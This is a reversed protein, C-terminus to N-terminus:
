EKGLYKKESLKFIHFFVEYAKKMKGDLYIAGMLAEFCEASTRIGETGVWITDIKESNGWQIFKWLELTNFLVSLVHKNEYIEKVLTMNGKKSEGYNIAQEMVVVKVVADGLTCLAEQHNIPTIDNEHAFAPRTLARELLQKDRFKYDIIKDINLNQKSKNKM